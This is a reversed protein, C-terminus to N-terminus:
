STPATEDRRYIPPLALATQRLQGLEDDIAIDLVDLEDEQAAHSCAAVASAREAQTAGENLSLVVMPRAATGDDAVVTALRAEAVADLARLARALTQEFATMPAAPEGLYVATGAAVTGTGALREVATPPLGVGVLDGPNVALGLGTGLLLRAIDGGPRPVLGGRWGGSHARAESTWALVSAAGGVDRVAPRPAEGAVDDVGCLLSESRLVVLLQEDVAGRERGEVLAREAPSLGATATM